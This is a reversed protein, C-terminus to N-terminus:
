YTSIKNDKTFKYHTQETIKLQILVQSTVSVILYQSVEILCDLTSYQLQCNFIQIQWRKVM